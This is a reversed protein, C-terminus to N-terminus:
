THSEAQNSDPGLENVINGESHYGDNESQKNTFTVTVERNVTNDSYVFDGTCATGTETWDYDDSVSVFEYGTQAIETVTYVIPQDLNLGVFAPLNCLTYTGGLGSITVDTEYVVTEKNTGVFARGVVKFVFLRHTSEDTIPNGETDLVNKVITLDCDNIEWVGVNGLKFKIDLAGLTNNAVASAKTVYPAGANTTGTKLITQAQINENLRAQNDKTYYTNDSAAVFEVTTLAENGNDTLEFANTYYKNNVQTNNLIDDSYKYCVDYVLRIPSIPYTKEVVGNKVEIKYTPVMEQPITWTLVQRNLQDTSVVIAIETLNYSRSEGAAPNVQGYYKYSFSGNSGIVKNTYYGDITTLTSGNLLQWIIWELGTFLKSDDNYHISPGLVVKTAGKLATKVANADTGLIEACANIDQETIEYFRDKIVMDVGMVDVFKLDSKFTSSNYFPTYVTTLSELIDAFANMLMQGLTGSSDNQTLEFYMKTYNYDDTTKGNSATTVTCNFMDYNSSGYSKTGDNSNVYSATGKISLHREMLWNSLKYVKVGCSSNKNFEAYGFNDVINAKTVSTDSLVYKDLQGPNNLGGNWDTPIKVEIQYTPYKGDANAYTAKDEYKARNNAIIYVSGSTVGDCLCSATGDILNIKLESNDKFDYIRVKFLDAYVSASSVKIKKRVSVELVGKNNADSNNLPITVTEIPRDNGVSGANYTTNTVNRGFTFESFVYAKKYPAFSLNKISCSGARNVISIAKNRARANSGSYLSRVLGGNTSVLITGKDDCIAIDRYYTENYAWRKGGNIEADFTINSISKAGSYKVNCLLVGNAFVYFNGNNDDIVKISIWQNAVGSNSYTIKKNDDLTPLAFLHSIYSNDGSVNTPIYVEIGNNRVTVGIGSAGAFTEKGKVTQSFTNLGINDVSVVNGAGNDYHNAEVGYNFLFGNAVGQDQLQIDAEFVYGGTFRKGDLANISKMNLQGNAYDSDGAGKNYYFVNGFAKSSNITGTGAFDNAFSSYTPALTGTSTANQWKLNAVGLYSTNIGPMAFDPNWWGQVKGDMHFEEDPLGNYGSINGAYYDDFDKHLDYVEEFLARYLNKCNVNSNGSWVQATNDKNKELNERTPNLVVSTYARYGSMDKLGNEGAEPMINITFIRSQKGVNAISNLKSAITNATKITYVGCDITIWSDIRAYGVNDTDDQLTYNYNYDGASIAGEAEGAENSKYVNAATPVSNETYVTPMGDTVLVLVPVNEKYGSNESRDAEKLLEYGYQLGLQTYTSGKVHHRKKLNTEDTANDDYSFNLSSDKENSAVGIIYPAEPESVDAYINSPYLKLYEKNSDPKWGDSVPMFNKYSSGYESYYCLGSNNNVEAFLGQKGGGSTGFLTVGVRNGQKSLIDGITANLAEIAQYMKLDKFVNSQGGYVPANMSGSIDLVFVVDLPYESTTLETSMQALASLVVNFNGNSKETEIYVSKDTWVMGTQDLGGIAPNKYGTVSDSVFQSYYDTGSAVVNNHDFFGICFTAVISFVILVSLSRILNKRIM